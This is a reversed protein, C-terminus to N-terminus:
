HQAAAHELHRSQEAHRHFGLLNLLEQLAEVRGLHRVSFRFPLVVPVPRLWLSVRSTLYLISVFFDLYAMLAKSTNASSSPRPCTSTASRASRCRMGFFNRSAM